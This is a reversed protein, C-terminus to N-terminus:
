TGCGAFYPAWAAFAAQSATVADGVPQTPYPNTSTQWTYALQAEFADVAAGDLARGAEADALAINLLGEARAQYYDAILGSWHQPRAPRSLPM